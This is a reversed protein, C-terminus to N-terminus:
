FIINIDWGDCCHGATIVRNSSVLSGGCMKSGGVGGRLLSVQHPFEGPVVEICGGPIHNQYRPSLRMSSSFIAVTQIILAIKLKM